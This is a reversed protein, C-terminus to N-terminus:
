HDGADERRPAAGGCGVAEACPAGSRHLLGPHATRPIKGIQISSLNKTPDSAATVAKALNARGKRREIEAKLKPAYQLAVFFRDPDLAELYAGAEQDSDAVSVKATAETPAEAYQGRKEGSTAADDTAEPPAAKPPPEVPDATTAEAEAIEKLAQNLRKLSDFCVKAGGDPSTLRFGGSKLQEVERGLRRAWECAADFGPSGAKPKTAPQKYGRPDVRTDVSSVRGAGEEEKRVAGVTTPSSGTERGIQRDTKHPDRALLSAIRARKEEPTLMRRHINYSAAIAYPDGEVKESWQDIRRHQYEPLPVWAVGDFEKVFALHEDDEADEDDEDYKPELGLAGIEALLDLRNRGDLVGDNWFTISMHMGHARIDEVLARFAAPDSERLLPYEDAAPHVKVFQRWDLPAAQDAGQAKSDSSM